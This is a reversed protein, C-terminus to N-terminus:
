LAGMVDYTCRYAAIKQGNRQFLVDDNFQGDANVPYPPPLNSLGVRSLGAASAAQLVLNKAATGVVSASDPGEIVVTGKQGNVKCEIVNVLTEAATSM